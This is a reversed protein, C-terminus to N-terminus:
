PWRRVPRWRFSATMPPWCPEPPPREARWTTTSTSRCGTSRRRASGTPWRLGGARGLHGGGRGVARRPAGGLGGVPRLGRPQRADGPRRRGEAIRGPGLRRELREDGPRRIGMHRAAGLRYPGREHHGLCRQDPQLLGDGRGAEGPAGGTEFAALYIEHLTREDVVADVCLRLTEQNNVAFHKVCAGVGRSQIGRIIATALEGTLLPDESLYEFNRGGFPHRKINIGPGLIVDVGQVGAEAALAGGIEGLLERDWSSGLSV